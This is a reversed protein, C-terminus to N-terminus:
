MDILEGFLFAAFHGILNVARDTAGLLVAGANSTTEGGYFSAVVGRKTDQSAYRQLYEDLTKEGCDFGATQADGDLARIFYNM